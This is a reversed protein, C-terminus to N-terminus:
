RGSSDNANEDKEPLPFEDRLDLSRRALELAQKRLGEHTTKRLIERIAESARLRDLPLLPQTYRADFRPAIRVFAQSFLDDREESEGSEEAMVELMMRALTQGAPRNLLERTATVVRQQLNVGGALPTLLLARATHYPAQDLHEAPPLGAEGQQPAVIWRRLDELQRRVREDAPEGQRIYEPVTGTLWWYDILLQYTQIGATADQPVAAEGALSGDVRYRPRLYRDLVDRTRPFKPSDDAPLHGLAAHISSFLAAVRDGLKPDDASSFELEEVLRAAVEPWLRRIQAARPDKALQGRWTDLGHM